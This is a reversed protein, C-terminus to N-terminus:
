TSKMSNIRHFEIAVWISDTDAYYQHWPYVFEGDEGVNAFPLHTDGPAMIVDEYLSNFDQQYFKQMRGTGYIQTHVELFDHKRHISCNTNETAFWLNVKVLFKDKNKSNDSQGTVFYPDFEVVGLSDQSSKWLPIDKPYQPIVNGALEWGDELIVGGINTADTVSVLLLSDANNIKIGCEVITSQGPLLTKKSPALIDAKQTGINVVITRERIPYNTVNAMWKAKLHKGSFSLEKVANRQLTQSNTVLADSTEIDRHFDTNEHTVVTDLSVPSDGEIAISEYPAPKLTQFTSACASSVFSILCFLTLASFWGVVMKLSLHKVVIVKMKNMLFQAIKDSKVM